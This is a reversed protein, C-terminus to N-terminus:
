ISSVVCKVPTHSLYYWYDYLQEFYLGEDPVLWNNGDTVSSSRCSPNESVFLIWGILLLSSTEKLYCRMEITEQHLAIRCSDICLEFVIHIVNDFCKPKWAVSQKVSTEKLYCQSDITEGGAGIACYNHWRSIPQYTSPECRLVPVLRNRFAWHTPTLGSCM